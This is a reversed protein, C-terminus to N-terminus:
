EGSKGEHLSFDNFTSEFLIFDKKAGHNLFSHPPELGGVKKEQGSILM